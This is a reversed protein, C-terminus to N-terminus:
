GCLYWEAEYPDNTRVYFTKPRLLNLFFNIKLM